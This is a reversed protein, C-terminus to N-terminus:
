FKKIYVHENVRIRQPEHLEHYTELDMKYNEKATKSWKGMRYFEVTGEKEDISSFRYIGRRIMKSTPM